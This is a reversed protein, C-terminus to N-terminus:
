EGPAVEVPTFRASIQEQLGENTGDFLPLQAVLKKTLQSAIHATLYNPLESWIKAETPHERHHLWIDGYYKLIM